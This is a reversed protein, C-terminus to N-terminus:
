TWQTIVVTQGPVNVRFYLTLGTLDLYTEELRTGAYVDEFITGSQGSVYALQLKANGRVRISFRKTGDTLVQSYETNALTAVVNYITPTTAPLMGVDIIGTGDPDVVKVAVDIKAPGTSAFKNKELDAISTLLPDSM